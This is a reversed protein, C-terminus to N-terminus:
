IKIRIIRKQIKHTSKDLKEYPDLPGTCCASILGHEPYLTYEIEHIMLANQHGLGLRQVLRKSFRQVFSLVNLDTSRKGSIHVMAELLDLAFHM